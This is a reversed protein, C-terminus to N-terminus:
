HTARELQNTTQNATKEFRLILGDLDAYASSDLPRNKLINALLSAWNSLQQIAKREQEDDFDRIAKSLARNDLAVNQVAYAPGRTLRQDQTLSLATLFNMFVAGLEDEAIPEGTVYRHTDQGIREFFTILDRVRDQEEDSLGATGNNSLADRLRRLIDLGRLLEFLLNRLHSGM